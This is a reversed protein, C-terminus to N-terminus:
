GVVGGTRANGDEIAQYSCAHCLYIETLMSRNWSPFAQSVRLPPPPPLTSSPASVSSQVVDSYCRAGEPLNFPQTCAGVVM